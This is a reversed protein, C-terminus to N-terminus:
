NNSDSVIVTFIEREVENCSFSDLDQLNKGKFEWNKSIHRFKENCNQYTHPFPGLSRSTCHFASPLLVFLCDGLSFM